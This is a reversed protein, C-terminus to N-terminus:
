SELAGCERLGTAIRPVVREVYEENINLAPTYRVVKDRAPCTFIGQTRLAACAVTASIGDPMVFGLLLGEGRVVVKHAELKERLLRGMERANKMLAGDHRTLQEVGMLACAIAGPYGGFTSGETGEKFVDIIDARAAFASMPVLTALGKSLVIGDPHVGFAEAATYFGTRGNGTQVEDFIFPVGRETCLERLAQLFGPPHVRVGGEGQIPEILVMATNRDIKDAFSRIDGFDALRVGPPFPGFGSRVKEQDSYMISEIIRGHFNGYEAVSNLLHEKIGRVEMAHKRCAKVALSVGEAGSNKFLVKDQKTLDCLTEELIPLREPILVNPGGAFEFLQAALAGILELDRYGTKQVAYMGIGDDMETGDFFTIKTGRGQIPILGSRGYHEPARANHMDLLADSNQGKRWVRLARLQRRIQMTLLMLQEETEQDLSDDSRMHPDLM